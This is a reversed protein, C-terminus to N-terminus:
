SRKSNPHDKKAEGDIGLFGKFDHVTESWLNNWWASVTEPKLEDVAAKIFTIADAIIFSKWCDTVRLNPDADIAARIMEFIQRTYSAKVCGISGQDLSQLVSTTNSPFFM